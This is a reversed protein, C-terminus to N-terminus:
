RVGSGLWDKHHTTIDTFSTGETLLGHQPCELSSIPWDNRWCAVADPLDNVCPGDYKEQTLLIKGVAPKGTKSNRSKKLDDVLAHLTAQDDGPDVVGQPEGGRLNM